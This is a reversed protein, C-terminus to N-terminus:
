RVICVTRLAYMHGQYRYQPRMLPRGSIHSLSSQAMCIGIALVWRGSMTRRNLAALHRVQEPVAPLVNVDTAVNRDLDMPRESM